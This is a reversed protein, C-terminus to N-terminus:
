DGLHTEGFDLIANLVPRLSQGLHTPVYEFREPKTQYAIKELMGISVLRKLRESLLNTPINEPCKAFNAYTRCEFILADRMIVLTWKDGFLDLTRAIPCSSRFARAPQNTLRAGPAIATHDEKRDNKENKEDSRGDIKAAGPASGFRRRLSWPM